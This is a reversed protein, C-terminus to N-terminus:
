KKPVEPPEVGLKITLLDNGRRLEVRRNEVDIRHLSVGGVLADGTTYHRPFKEGSSVKYDPGGAILATLRGDALVVGTLKFRPWDGPYHSLRNLSERVPAAPASIEVEDDDAPETPPRRGRLPSFLDRVTIIERETMMAGGAEASGGFNIEAEPASWGDGGRGADDPRISLIMLVVSLVGIVLAALLLDRKKIM